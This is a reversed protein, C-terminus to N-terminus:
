APREQATHTSPNAPAPPMATDDGRALQSLRKVTLTRWGLAEAREVAEFLLVARRLAERQSDTPM